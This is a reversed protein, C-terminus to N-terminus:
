RGVKVVPLRVRFCAGSGKGAVLELTGDMRSIIQRSIALGLGAGSETGSNAGRSFKEFILNRDAKAIGAGNDEVEVTYFKGRVSSRVEM